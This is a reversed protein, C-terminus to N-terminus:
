YRRVISVVKGVIHIDNGDDPSFLLPQLHRNAPQLRIRDGDRYFRKLTAEDGILAVVIDGNNATPQPHVLALDGDLIADDIMSDGRVRLYFAGDANGTAPELYGEIEEIAPHPAGARVTGIIPVGQRNQRGIIRLGRATGAEKRICGKKELAQLHKLVGLTGSIQLDDAIERLTPPIGNRDLARTICDLVQQQRSTLPEM